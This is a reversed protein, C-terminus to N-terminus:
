RRRRHDDPSGFDPDKVSNLGWHHNEFRQMALLLVLFRPIDQISNFASTSRQIPGRQDYCWVYLLGYGGVVIPGSVHQQVGHAAFAEAAYSDAEIIVPHSMKPKPKRNVLPINTPEGSPPQSSARSPEFAGSPTGSQVLVPERRRPTYWPVHRIHPMLPKGPLT